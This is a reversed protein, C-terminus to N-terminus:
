RNLTILRERGLEPAATTDIASRCLIRRDGSGSKMQAMSVVASSLEIEILSIFRTNHVAMSLSIPHFAVM